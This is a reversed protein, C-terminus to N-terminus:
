GNGGRHRFGDGVAAKTSAESRVLVGSALVRRLWAYRQRIASPRGSLEIATFNTVIGNELTIEIDIFFSVQETESHLHTSKHM